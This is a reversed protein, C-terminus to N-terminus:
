TLNMMHAGDIVVFFIILLALYIRPLCYCHLAVCVPKRPPATAHASSRAPAAPAATAPAATAATTPATSPAAPAASARTRGKWSEHGTVFLHSPVFQYSHTCLNLINIIKPPQFSPGFRVKINCHITFPDRAIKVQM